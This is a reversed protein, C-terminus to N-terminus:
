IERATVVWGLANDLKAQSVAYKKGNAVRHISAGRQLNKVFSWDSKRFLFTIDERETDIMDDTLPDATGDVFCSVEFIGTTGDKTKITISEDFFPCFARDINEFPSKM